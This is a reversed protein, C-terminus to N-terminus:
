FDVKFIREGTPAASGGAPEVTVGIGLYNSFSQVPLIAKTTYIQGSEPRFLGASDRGGDPKVLWIQYTQNQALAPINQAILVAKNNERDLLITGSIEGGVINLMKTNPSSLMALASQSEWVQNILSAQQNQIKRLQAFSALNLILLVLMAFGPALRSFPFTWQPRSSKQASPLRAMLTRKLAPRPAQPPLASLLGASVRQHDALETRCAICVDLHAELGASEEMDLAGLAYAPINELFPAHEDLTMQM